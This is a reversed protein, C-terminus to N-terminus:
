PITKLLEVDCSQRYSSLGPGGLTLSEVLHNAHGGRFLDAFEELDSPLFSGPMATELVEPLVRFTRDGKIKDHLMVTVEPIRFALERLHGTTSLSCGLEWFGNEEPTLHLTEGKRLQFHSSTQLDFFRPKNRRELLLNHSGLLAFDYWRYVELWMAPTETWPHRGDISKGDFVLFRPGKDRVWAANLGDLYPTYASYRELAPYLVLNLDQQRAYDYTASLAAIPQSGVRDRIDKELRDEETFSQLEQTKLQRRLNEFRLVPVMMLLPRVGLFSALATKPAIRAVNDVWITAMLLFLVGVTIVNRFTEIPSALMVLALLLSVFCFFYLTHAPQRVFGHKFTLLLPVSLVTVFFNLLRRNSRALCSIAVVLLVFSELAAVLEVPSDALSMAASYGRSLEATGKVYALMDHWSGITFWFGAFVLVPVALPLLLERWNRRQQYLLFDLVLGAVIVAVIILDVVKLLPVVSMGVLAACYRLWGGRLRFNVLLLLCGALLADPAGPITPYQYLRASLGIFASFFVLNRLRFGSRFCLDFLIAILFVWMAAQFILGRALNSGIDMPLILYSLPGTTWVIDHGMVLHHNAAYNLGFYWTSESDPTLYLYTIPCFVFVLYFFLAWRIVLKKRESIEQM